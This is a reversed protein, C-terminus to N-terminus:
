LSTLASYTIGVKNKRIEGVAGYDHSVSLRAGLTSKRRKEHLKSKPMDRGPSSLHSSKRRESPETPCDVTFWNVFQLPQSQSLPQLEAESQSGFNLYSKTAPLWTERTSSGIGNSLSQEAAFMSYNHHFENEQTYNHRYEPSLLDYDVNNHYSSARRNVRIDPVTDMPQVRLFHRRFSKRYKKDYTVYILFNASANVVVLVNSFDAFYNLIISEVNFFADIINTVLNLTNCLLFLVVVMVLTITNDGEKDNTYKLKNCAHQLGFQVSMLRDMKKRRQVMIVISSNLITLVLVPTLTMLITHMYVNYVFHNGESLRFETPCIEYMSENRNSVFCRVKTLEWFHPMNYVVSCVATGAVVRQACSLTNWRGSHTVWCVKVFCDVAAGVTFYISCTTAIQGLPMFVIIVGSLHQRLHYSYAKASDLTILLGTVNVVMDSCALAALYLSTSETLSQPRTYLYMNVINNLIGFCAITPTLVMISIFNSIQYETTYNDHHLECWCESLNEM